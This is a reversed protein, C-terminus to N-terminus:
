GVRVLTGDRVAYLADPELVDPVRALVRSPDPVIRVGNPVERGPGTFVDAGV